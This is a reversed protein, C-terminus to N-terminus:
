SLDVISGHRAQWVRSMGDMTFGEIEYAMQVLPPDDMVLPVRNGGPPPFYAHVTMQLSKSIRSTFVMQVLPKLWFM